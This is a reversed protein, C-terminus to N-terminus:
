NGVKKRLRRDTWEVWFTSDWHRTAALAAAWFPVKWLNRRMRKLFEDPLPVNHVEVYHVLGEPWVWTGDTICRSGEVWECGFRCYSVGLFSTHTHGSRLYRLVRGDATAAGLAELLSPPHPFGATFALLGEPVPQSSRWGDRNWYGVAKLVRRAIIAERLRTILRSREHRLKPTVKQDM